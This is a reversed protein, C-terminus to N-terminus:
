SKTAYNPIERVWLHFKNFEIFPAAFMRFNHIEILDLSM